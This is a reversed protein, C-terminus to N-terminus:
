PSTTRSSESCTEYFSTLDLPIYFLYSCNRYRKNRHTCNFSFLCVATIIGLSALLCMGIFLTLSVLRLVPQIITRDQPMQGGVVVVVILDGVVVVVILSGVVVVVILGGVVVVILGVVVVVSLDGIVIVVILDGIVVVVIIDGVVIVVIM